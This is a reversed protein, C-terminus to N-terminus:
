QPRGRRLRAFLRTGSFSLGLLLMGAAFCSAGVLVAARVVTHIPQGLALGAMLVLSALLLTEIMVIRLRWRFAEAEFRQAVRREILRELEAQSDFQLPLQGPHVHSKQRM